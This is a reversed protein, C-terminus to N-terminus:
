VLVVLQFISNIVQQSPASSLTVFLSIAILAIVIITAVVVLYEITGQAVSDINRSHVM